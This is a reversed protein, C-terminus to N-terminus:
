LNLAGIKANYRELLAVVSEKPADLTVSASRTTHSYEYSVVRRYSTDHADPFRVLDGERLQSVPRYVAKDDLAYYSLTCSGSRSLLNAQELWREGTALAQKETGIGNLDLVDQRTIDMRVAPHDPDTIELGADEVMAGSGPPGITRVSGDVDTYRVVISRWLRSADLAQEQLNSPGTYAQWKHGYTGPFRLHFKKGRVFWDLLGYKTLDEVVQLMSGPDSFWAQPIVFEDDELDEENVELYTHLPVAYALMQKATFGVDPWEGQLPLNHAGVVKPTLWAHCDSYPTTGSAGYSAVALVYKYGAGPATVITQATTTAKLNAGDFYSSLVDDVSLRLLDVWSGSGESIAGINKLGALAYGIDVGGGYYVAEGTENEGEANALNRFDILVGAPLEGSDQFGTSISAVLPYGGKAADDVRQLSPSGWKSLDGDIFGPGILGKDDVLAAKHGVIAPSIATTDGNSEPAKDIRGEWVTNVGPGYFEVDLFPYLDPYSFLPDRALATSAEKTGGNLEGSLKLDGLVNEQTSADEALRNIVAGTRPDSIQAALLDPPLERSVAVRGCTEPFLSDSPFLDESPLLCPM